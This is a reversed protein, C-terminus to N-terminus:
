YFEKIQEFKSKEKVKVEEELDVINGLETRITKVILYDKLNLNRLSEPIFKGEGGM